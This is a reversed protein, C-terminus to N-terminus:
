YQQMDLMRQQNRHMHHLTCSWLEEPTETREQTQWVRMSQLSVM